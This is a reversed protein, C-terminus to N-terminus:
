SVTVTGFMQTPHVDCHFYYTGAELAPITTTATAPGTVIDTKAISQTYGSDSFLDFSHPIGTDTNDFTFSITKGAPLSLTTTSFRITPVAQISAAATGGGGGGGGGRPSASPSASPTATPSPSGGGGSPSPSPSAGGGVTVTGFMQTPHVDCHFYYTGPKLAPITTTATAPGTVIDTKAISKTYGSDSFLDFNHPVTTDTNDFTFSIQQGAPLSLHDTSFKITPVAKISAVANEGGKAVTIEPGIAVIAIGGAVMAVGVVGGVLAGITRGRVKPRSAAYAAGGLITAAVVVAVATAAGSAVSLLVRSFAFLVLGMLALIGIPLLLPLLLRNRTDSKM